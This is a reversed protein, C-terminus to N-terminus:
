AGGGTKFVQLGRRDQGPSSIWKDPPRSTTTCRPLCRWGDEPTFERLTTPPGPLVDPLETDPRADSSGSTASTIVIGHDLTTKSCDPVELVQARQRRHRCGTERAGIGCQYRGPPGRVPCSGFGAESRRITQPPAEAYVTRRDGGPDQGPSRHSISLELNNVFIGDREASGCNGRASRVSVAV